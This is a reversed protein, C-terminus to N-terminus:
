KPPGFYVRAPSGFSYLGLNVNGGPFANNGDADQVLFSFVRVNLDATAVCSGIEEGKKVPIPESEEHKIGKFPAKGKPRNEPVSLAEKMDLTTVLDAGEKCQFATDLVAKTPRGVDFATLDSSALAALAASLADEVSAFGEGAKGLVPKADSAVPAPSSAPATSPAASSKVAAATSASAASAAGSKAASSSSTKANSDCAGLAACLLVPILCRM